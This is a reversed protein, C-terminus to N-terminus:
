AASHLIGRRWLAIGSRGRPRILEFVALLKTKTLALERELEEYTAKRNM